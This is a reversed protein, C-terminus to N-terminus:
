QRQPPRGTARGPLSASSCKVIAASNTTGSRTPARRSTWHRPCTTRRSLARRSALYRLGEYMIEAIPNGWMQCEGENIVRTASAWGCAYQYNTGFGTTHLRNFATIIGPNGTFVGTAATIEDTMLNSSSGMAERLVGGSTNKKYSGSMLGFFMRPSVGEGYSQLLGTPKFLAPPGPYRTCNTEELGPKCVRVRVIRDTITPAGAVGDISGSASHAVPVEKSVWNWVHVAIPVTTYRLLPAQGYVASGNAVAGRPTTNAFLLRQGATPISFPAYQSIDFHDTAVNTYEKGWSHADQPIYSRELITDAPSSSDTSRDGGYLVKRLADIRSTTLYNLYDGSWKTGDCTKTTTKSVPDFVNTATDYNYCKYSDFYGYYDIKYLSDNSGAAPAPSKLEYGKYGTDLVGDNNLDSADNYAEYYLKHDRGMVLLNLPPVTGSLFLPTESVNLEAAPVNGSLAVIMAVAASHLLKSTMTKASM